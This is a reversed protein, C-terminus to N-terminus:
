SVAPAGEAKLAIDKRFQAGDFRIKAVAAYAKARADAITDGLAVVSLVRGGATVIRDGAKKTGAHFVVVDPDGKVDDLGLISKGQPYAGPYGGSAM